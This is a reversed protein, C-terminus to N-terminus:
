IIYGSEHSPHSKILVHLCVIWIDKTALDSALTRVNIVHARSFYVDTGRPRHARCLTSGGFWTSHVVNAKTQARFEFSFCSRIHLVIIFTNHILSVTNIVQEVIVSRAMRKTTICAMTRVAVSRNYIIIIM